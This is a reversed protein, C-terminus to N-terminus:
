AFPQTTAHRSELLPNGIPCEEGLDTLCVRNRGENKAQYLMRDVADLLIEPTLGQPPIVTACGLSVTVHDAAVSHSHPIALAKVGSRVREAVRNAGELDTNPLIIAFEEGGYRSATDGARLLSSVLTTAIQKLCDDGAGHGYHDNYQKFYDVDALVISLPNQKRASRRWEADLMEDFRRRNSIGTLGDLSALAELLDTKCKLSVHTRVRAKVIPLKYPKTIYDVAGLRLGYEEDETDNRATVFIVPINKTIESERLRRCVEYGDMVPMMVDLLILDPKDDRHALELATQGDKAVRIQYESRLAEALVHINTPMDDVILIVPRQTQSM